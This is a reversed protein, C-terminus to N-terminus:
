TKRILQLVKGSRKPTTGCDNDRAAAAEPAPTLEVAVMFHEEGNITFIEGCMQPQRLTWNREVPPLLLMTFCATYWNKKGDPKINRMIAYFVGNPTGVLLIDGSHTTDKLSIHKKIDELKADLLMHNDKCPCHYNQYINKKLKALKSWILM